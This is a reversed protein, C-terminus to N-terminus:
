PAPPQAASQAAPQAAPQTAPQARASVDFEGGASTQEHVHRVIRGLIDPDTAPLVGHGLNFVHGPLATARRLVDDVHDRVAPWGALCVAPDLNGQLAPVRGPSGDSEAAGAASVAAASVRRHAEGLPVRWDVGLVECGVTSMPGLLEGTAVGFHARVVGLAALDALGDFVRRTHPLVFRAYDHPTLAGAWTDFLQVASAGALVQSRMSALAIDALRAMLDHWLEPDDLMLAKTRAHDRAPRGEILYCAVTFPAGAFGILPIGGHGAPSPVDPSPASALQETVLRVAALVHPTHHEPDLEPLRDLDSRREFPRGVVPGVGRVVDVGFGVAAVPVVIDSFLVAADVGHRRVPQLTLEAALDADAITDLITGTGRRARYEPLSRGAQRQFWVPTFPPPSGARVARLYASDGLGFLPHDAAPM